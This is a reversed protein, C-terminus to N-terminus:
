NTLIPFSLNSERLCAEQPGSTGSHTTPHRTGHLKWKQIDIYIMYVSNKNNKQTRRFMSQCFKSYTRLCWRTISSVALNGSRRVWSNNELWLPQPVFNMLIWSLSPTSGGFQTGFFSQEFRLSKTMQLFTNEPALSLNWQSYSRTIPLILFFSSSLM